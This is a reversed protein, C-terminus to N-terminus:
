QRVVVVCAELGEHVLVCVGLCVCDPGGRRCGDYVGSVFKCRKARCGGERYVGVSFNTMVLKEQWLQDCSGRADGDCRCSAGSHMGLQCWTGMMDVSEVAM